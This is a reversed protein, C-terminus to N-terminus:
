LEDVKEVRYKEQETTLHGVEGEQMDEVVAGERCEGPKTGLKSAAAVCGEAPHPVRQDVDDHVGVVGQGRRPGAELLVEPPLFIQGGHLHDLKHDDKNM